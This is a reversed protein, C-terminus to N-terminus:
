DAMVLVDEMTRMTKLVLQYEAESLRVRTLGQGSLEREDGHHCDLMRDLDGEDRARLVERIIAPRCDLVRFNDISTVGGSRAGDEWTRCAVAMVDGVKPDGITDLRCHHHVYQAGCVGTFAVTKTSEGPGPAPAISTVTLALLTPISMTM